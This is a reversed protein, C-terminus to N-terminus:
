TVLLIVVMKELSWLTEEAQVRFVTSGHNGRERNGLTITVWM